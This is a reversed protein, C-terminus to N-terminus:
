LWTLTPWVRPGWTAALAAAYCALVGAGLRAVLGWESADDRRVYAAVALLCWAGTADTVVDFLSFDRGRGALHQHLEDVVGLVAVLAVLRLRAARDLRPWGDPRPRTLALWLGLLGFLPAHGLNTILATARFAAVGQSPWSSFWTILGMWGVAVVYAGARPLRLLGRALSAFRDLLGRGPRTPAGSERM